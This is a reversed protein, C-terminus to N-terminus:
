RLDRMKLGSVRDCGLDRTCEPPDRSRRGGSTAQKWEKQQGEPSRDKERVWYRIINKEEGGEGSEWGLQERYGGGIIAKKEM